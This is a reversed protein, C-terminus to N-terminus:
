KGEKTLEIRQGQSRYIADIVRQVALGEEWSVAAPRREKCAAVFDADERYYGEGGYGPSLNFGAQEFEWRAVEHVGTDFGAAPRRLQLRFGATDVDLRGTSGEIAVKSTEVEYGTKSWSTHVRGTVGPYELQVDAEDEVDTSYCSRCQATLAQVPGFWRQLTHLLHCTSNIVMGGGSMQRNYIWGKKPAFVQSLYCTAEFSRLEGIAGNRLLRGVEQCYGEHSKMFGVGAIASSHKRLVDLMAQADELKHALPKEVFVDLGANLCTEAVSRHAFQPTCVFVGQLQVQKVAEEVSTFFPVPSGMMSQVHRGLKPERDILAALRAGPVNRVMATHMIGIKGLGIIAFNM